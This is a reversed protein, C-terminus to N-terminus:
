TAALLRAIHTLFTFDYGRSRRISLGRRINQRFLENQIVRQM